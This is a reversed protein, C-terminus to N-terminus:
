RRAATAEECVRSFTGNDYLIVGEDFVNHMFPSLVRSHWDLEQRSFHVTSIFITYKQQYTFEECIESVKTRVTRPNPSVVLIDIDSDRRAERRAVSGYLVIADVQDGLAATLRRAFEAAANKYKENLKQPM